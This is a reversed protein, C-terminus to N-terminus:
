SGPHAMAPYEGGAQLFAQVVRGVRELSQASLKDATDHTTHWYPYDFDIMDVAPIGMDLFPTHDDLMSYRYEPIFNEGYGLVAAIQWLANQLVPDSNRELYINQDADGIMDLIIAYAPRVPMAAAFARSGAIWDWGDLEGDDEADFFVLWVQGHVKSIDLTHALELLVAVGSAGDNAGPVPQDPSVADQDARRRTDYHAGFLYVPGDQQGAKAVLNHAVVGQYTFPQDETQWGYSNLTDLIYQATQHIADSGTSRPGFAMQADVFRM